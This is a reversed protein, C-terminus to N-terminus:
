TCTRCLCRSGPVPQVQGENTRASAGGHASAIKVSSAQMIDPVSAMNGKPKTASEKTQSAVVLALSKHLVRTVYM